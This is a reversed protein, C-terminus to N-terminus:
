VYNTFRLLPTSLLKKIHFPLNNNINSINGGVSIEGERPFFGTVDHLQDPIEKTFINLVGGLFMGGVDSKPNFTITFSHGHHKHLESLIANYVEGIPTIGKQILMIFDKNNDLLEGDEALIANSIRAIDELTSNEDILIHQLSAERSGDKKIKGRESSILSGKLFKGKYGHIKSKLLKLKKKPELIKKEIEQLSKIVQEQFKENPQLRIHVPTYTFRAQRSGKADELKELVGELNEYLKKEDDEYNYNIFLKYGTDIDTIKYKVLEENLLNIINKDIRQGPIKGEKRVLRVTDYLNELIGSTLELNRYKGLPQTSYLRSERNINFLQNAQRNQVDRLM